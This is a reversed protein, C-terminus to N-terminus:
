ESDKANDLALKDMLKKELMRATAQQMSRSIIYSLLLCTGVSLLIPVWPVEGGAVGAPASPAVNIMHSLPISSLQTM